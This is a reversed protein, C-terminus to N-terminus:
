VGTRGILLGKRSVQIPVEAEHQGFVKCTAGTASDREMGQLPRAKISMVINGIDLGGSGVVGRGYLYQRQHTDMRDDWKDQEEPTLTRVAFPEAAGEGEQCRYESEGDTVATIRAQGV